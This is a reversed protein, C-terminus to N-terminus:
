FSINNAQHTQHTGISFSFVSVSTLDVQQPLKWSLQCSDRESAKCTVNANRSCPIATGAYFCGISDVTKSGCLTICDSFTYGSLRISLTFGQSLLWDLLQKQSGPASFYPNLNSTRVNNPISEQTGDYQRYSAFFVMIFIYAILLFVLLALCFLGGKPEGQEAFDNEYVAVWYFV